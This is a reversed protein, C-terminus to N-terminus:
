VSGLGAGARSRWRARREPAIGADDGLTDVARAYYGRAATQDGRLWLLEALEEFVYGDETGAKLHEAELARQIALAEDHRGLTRLCRAVSWRAIRLPGPAGNAEREALAREFCGLADEARGLEHLTWGLNNEVPAIWRRARPDSSRRAIELAREAWEIQREPPEVIALMHAADAALDELGAARALALADTFHASSGRPDGSTNVVRGRELHYFVRAEVPAGAIRDAVADLEAHAEAFRRQLGLARALQTRLVLADDGAGTALARRMQQEAARPDSFDWRSTITM